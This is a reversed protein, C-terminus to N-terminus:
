PEERWGLELQEVDAAAEALRARAPSNYVVSHEGVFFGLVERAEDDGPVLDLLNRAALALSVAAQRLRDLEGAYTRALDEAARARALNRDAAARLEEVLAAAESM